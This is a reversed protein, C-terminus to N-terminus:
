VEYAAGGIFAMVTAILMWGCCMMHACYEYVFRFIGIEWPPGEPFSTAQANAISLSCVILLAAISFALLRM